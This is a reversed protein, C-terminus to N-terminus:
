RGKKGCFPCFAWYIELEENCGACSGDKRDHWRDGQHYLIQAIIVLIPITTTIQKVLFIISHEAFATIGLVGFRIASLINFSLSLDRVEKHVHVKWIQFWYSVSLIAVAIWSLIELFPSMTM